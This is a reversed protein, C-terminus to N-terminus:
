EAVAPSWYRKGASVATIANRLHCVDDSKLVFGEPEARVAECVCAEHTAGTYFIVAIALGRQRLERLVGVGNLGPLRLDAIVIRPKLVECLAIAQRGEQCEGLLQCKCCSTLFFALMQRISLDDEALFLRPQM